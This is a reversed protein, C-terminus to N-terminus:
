HRNGWTSVRVSIGIRAVFVLVGEQHPLYEGGSWAQRQLLHVKWQDLAQTFNRGIAGKYSYIPSSSSGEVGEIQHLPIHDWHSKVEQSVSSEELTQCM